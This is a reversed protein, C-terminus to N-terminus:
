RPWMGGSERMAAASSTASAAQCKSSLGGAAIANGLLRHTSASSSASHSVFRGPSEKWASGAPEKGMAETILHLKDGDVLRLADGGDQELIGARGMEDLTKRVEEM